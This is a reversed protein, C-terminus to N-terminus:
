FSGSSGGHSTGSHGTHVTSGGGGGSRGHDENKPKKVRTVKSYLFLDEQRTLDFSGSKVYEAADRKSRVSKLQGKLGATVCSAGGAGIGLSLLYWLPSMPKKPMNGTDYINGKEASTIFDECCDAFTSFAKEYKGEGLYPSIAEGIYSSGADTFYDIGSGTTAIGWKRDGFAVLLIVGDSNQGYGYGNYDYFDEAYVQPHQGYISNETLIVIDFQHAESIKQLKAELKEAEEATLVGARDVVKRGAAQVPTGSVSPVFHLVMAASCCLVLMLLVSKLIKKM